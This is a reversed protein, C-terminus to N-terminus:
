YSDEFAELAYRKTSYLGGGFHVARANASGRKDCNAPDIGQIESNRYVGFENNSVWLDSINLGHLTSKQDLDPM